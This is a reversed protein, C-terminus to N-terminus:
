GTDILPLSTSMCRHHTPCKRMVAPHHRPDSMLPQSCGTGGWCHSHEVWLGEMGHPHAPYHPIAMDLSWGWLWLCCAPSCLSDRQMGKSGSPYLM